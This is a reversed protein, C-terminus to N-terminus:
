PQFVLLYPAAGSKGCCVIQGYRTYDELVALPLEHSIYFDVGLGFEEAEVAGLYDLEVTETTSLLCYCLTIVVRFLPTWSGM